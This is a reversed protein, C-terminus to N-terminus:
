GWCAHMGHGSVIQALACEGPACYNKDLLVIRVGLTETGLHLRLNAGQKLGTAIHRSATLRVDLRYALGRLVPSLIWDGRAIDNYNMGTLNLACRTGASTRMATKGSAHLSRVRL